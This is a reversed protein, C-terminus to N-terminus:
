NMFIFTLLAFCNKNFGGFDNKRSMHFYKQHSNKKEKVQGSSFARSRSRRDMMDNKRPRLPRTTRERLSDYLLKDAKNCRGCSFCVALPASRRAPKRSCEIWRGIARPRSPDNNSEGDVEGVGVGGSRETVESSGRRSGRSCVPPRQDRGLTKGAPTRSVM